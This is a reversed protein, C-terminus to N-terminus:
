KYAITSSTLVRFGGSEESNFIFAVKTPSWILFLRLQNHSRHMFLFNLIKHLIMLSKLSQPVCIQMTSNGPNKTITFSVSHKPVQSSGYAAPAAWSIAFLCFFFFFFFLYPTSLMPAKPLLTVDQQKYKSLHYCLQYPVPWQKWFLVVKWTSM